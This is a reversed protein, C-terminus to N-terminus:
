PKKASCADCLYKEGVVDWNDLRWRLVQNRNDMDTAVLIYLAKRCNECNVLEIASVFHEDKSGKYAENLAMLDYLIASIYRTWKINPSTSQVAQKGKKLIKDFSAM